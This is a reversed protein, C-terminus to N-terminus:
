LPITLLTRGDGTVVEFRAIDGRSLATGGEAVLPDPSGPVGYGKPPVRWGTVVAREGTRSVAQLTCTLPGRVGRLELGVRTGWRKDELSVAGSAGTAPDSASHREGWTPVAVPPNTQADGNEIAVGAAVGAGLLGAAAVAGVAYRWPRRARRAERAQRIPIPAPSSVPDPAPRPMPVPAPEPAPAPSQDRLESLVDAMGQMQRLEAQCQRCGHLHAEFARRDEEELLGLAYAGVDTHEVPSGSM